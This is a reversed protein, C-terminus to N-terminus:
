DPNVKKAITMGPIWSFIRSISSSITKSQQKDTAVYNSKKTKLYEGWSKKTGGDYEFAYDKDILWKNITCSEGICTIEILLRGYKDFKGCKVHVVKKLIRNRLEDRVFYGHKKEEDCRTRLEPTDIGTLRCNWKYMHGHLPFVIRITDGDYVSIVKTEIIQDEFSLEKADTITDWNNDKTM